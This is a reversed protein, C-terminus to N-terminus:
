PREPIARVIFRKPAAGVYDFPYCTVLTLVDGLSPDLMHGERGDVILTRVARYRIAGGLTTLLITDDVRLDKLPRFFTNRHGAIGVHGREGPYATDEIHGVGRKLEQESTGDLIMVSIRLSPIELRGVTVPGGRPIGTKLVPPLIASTREFEVRAWRQFLSADLVVYGCYVLLALGSGFLFYHSTGLLARPLTRANHGSKSLTPFQM